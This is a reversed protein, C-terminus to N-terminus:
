IASIKNKQGNDMTVNEYNMIFNNHRRHWMDQEDEELTRTGLQLANRLV